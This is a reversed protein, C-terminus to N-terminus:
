KSIKRAAELNPITWGTGRKRHYEVADYQRNLRDRMSIMQTQKEKNSKKM